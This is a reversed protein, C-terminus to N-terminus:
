YIYMYCSRTNSLIKSMIYTSNKVTFLNQDTVSNCAITVSNRTQSNKSYFMLYYNISMKKKEALNCFVMVEHEVLFLLQVPWYNYM